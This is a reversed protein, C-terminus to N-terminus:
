GNGVSDSMYLAPATKVLSGSSHQQAEMGGFPCKKEVSTWAKTVCIKVDEPTITMQALANQM